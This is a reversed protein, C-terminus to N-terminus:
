RATPADNPAIGMGLAQRRTYTQYARQVETHHQRYYRLAAPSALNLTREDVRITFHLTDQPWNLLHLGEFFITRFGDRTREILLFEIMIQQYVVARKHSFRKGVIDVVGETAMSWRDLETFDHAPYLLDIDNHTRPASIQWLEEAWGGFIWTTLQADALM